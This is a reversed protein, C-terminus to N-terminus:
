VKDGEMKEHLNKLFRYVDIGNYICETIALSELLDEKQRGAIYLVNAKMKDLMSQSINQYEQDNGCLVITNMSNLHDIKEETATKLEFGGAAFFSSLFDLRPKFDKIEGLLVVGVQPLHGKKTRYREAQQRLQEFHEVLRQQRLPQIQESVTKVNTLQQKVQQISNGAGAKSLLTNFSEIKLDQVAVGNMAEVRNDKMVVQDSLNAFVNTGILQTSRQNVDDLRKVLSKELDKQVEGRVLAQHFGGERDIEKITLWTNEALQKTLSEIYWSGGAPDIVKELLSEEKLIFHTNRAIRDALESSEGLVADFSDVTLSNVGGVVGAFAENTTRLLNVHVDYASKNFSSTSAHLDMKQAEESGGFAAVISAWIQKAARLKAVEMFFNSGISFSFSIRKSIADISHGRNVLENIVDLANSFAYALEQEANGGANHYIQSKIFIFRLASENKEGWLLAESLYDYQSSLSISTEGTLLLQEFPDFGVTGKLHKVENLFSIFMPLFSLNEKINILLHFPKENLSSFAIEFDEKRVFSSVSDLYISNQGREIALKIKQKLQEPQLSCTDRQSIYWEQEQYGSPYNGRLYPAQGPKGSPHADKATYLPQLKINEYTNKRLTELSKGKITSMAEEEWEKERSNSSSDVQTRNENGM